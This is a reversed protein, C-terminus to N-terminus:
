RDVFATLYLDKYPSKWEDHLGDLHGRLIRLQEPESRGQM